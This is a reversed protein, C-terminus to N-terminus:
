SSTLSFLWLWRRLWRLLLRCCLRSSLVMSVTDLVDSSSPDEILGKVRLDAEHRRAMSALLGSVLVEYLMMDIDMIPVNCMLIEGDPYLM